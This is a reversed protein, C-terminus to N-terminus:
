VSHTKYTEDTNKVSSVTVDLAVDELSTQFYADVYINYGYPCPYLHVNEEKLLSIMNHFLDDQGHGCLIICIRM